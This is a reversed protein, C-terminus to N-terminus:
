NKLIKFNGKGLMLWVFGILIIIKRGIDFTRRIFLQDLIIIINIFLYCLIQVKLMIIEKFIEVYESIQITELSKKNKVKLKM